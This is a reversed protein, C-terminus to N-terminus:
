ARVEPAKYTGDLVSDLTRMMIEGAGARMAYKEAWARGRGAIGKLQSPEDLLRKLNAYVQYHKTVVWCENTGAPLDTEVTEDSSM